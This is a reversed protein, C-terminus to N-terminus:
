VPVRCTILLAVRLMWGYEPWYEPFVEPLGLAEADEFDDMAKELAAMCREETEGLSGQVVSDAVLRRVNFSM